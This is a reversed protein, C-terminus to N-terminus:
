LSTMASRMTWMASSVCRSTIIRPTSGAAGQVGGRLAALDGAVLRPIELATFLRPM